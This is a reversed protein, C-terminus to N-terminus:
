LKACGELGLDRGGSFGELPNVLRFCLKLNPIISRETICHELLM